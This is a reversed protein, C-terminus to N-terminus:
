SREDEEPVSRFQRECPLPNMRLPSDDVDVSNHRSTGPSVNVSIYSSRQDRSMQQHNKGFTMTFGNLIEQHRLNTESFPRERPDSKEKKPKKKPKEGKTSRWGFTKALRLTHSKPPESRHRESQSPDCISKRRSFHDRIAM